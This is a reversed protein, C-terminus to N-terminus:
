KRAVEIAVFIAAVVIMVIYAWNPVSVSNSALDMAVLALFVWLM